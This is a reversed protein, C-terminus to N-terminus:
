RYDPRDHYHPAARRPRGYAVRPNIYCSAPRGSASAMCQAYSRFSCDPNFDFEASRVCWPYDYALAPAAGALTAIGAVSLVVTALMLNRM